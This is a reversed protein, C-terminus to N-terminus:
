STMLNIIYNSKHRWCINLNIADIVDNTQSTVRDILDIVEHAKHRKMDNVNDSCYRWWHFLTESSSWHCRWTLSTMLDIVDDSGHRWWILSTMLDIVYRYKAWYSIHWWILTTVSLSPIALMTTYKSWFLSTVMGIVDETWFRWRILSMM